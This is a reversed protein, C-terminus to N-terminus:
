AKGSARSSACAAILADLVEPEPPKTLHHDFGAERSRRKDDDQGWGTLAVLTVRKGLLERIHQAAEYGDMRPMGIDLFAIQPDFARALEIAAVGDIAVRVDHGKVGLMVRMMEAADANDEAVLVRCPGSAARDGGESLPKEVSQAVPLQVIFTSGRGPGDSRAEITGGHLV